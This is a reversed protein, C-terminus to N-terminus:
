IRFYLLRRDNILGATRSHGTPWWAPLLSGALASKEGSLVEDM